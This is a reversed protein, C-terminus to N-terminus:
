AHLAGQRARARKEHLAIVRPDNLRELAQHMLREGCDRAIRSRWVGRTKWSECYDSVRRELRNLVGARGEPTSLKESDYDFTFPQASSPACILFSAIAAAAITKLGM